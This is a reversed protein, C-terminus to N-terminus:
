ALLANDAYPLVLIRSRGGPLKRSPWDMLGPGQGGDATVM